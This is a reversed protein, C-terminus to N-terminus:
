SGCANVIKEAYDKAAQSETPNKVMNQAIGLINRSRVRDYIRYATGDINIDFFLQSELDVTYYSQPVGTIVLNTVNTNSNYNSGSIYNPLGKGAVGYKWGWNASNLDVTNKFKYGFRINTYGDVADGHRLSGGLFTFYTNEIVTYLGNEQNQAVVYNADLADYNPMETSGYAVTFSETPRYTDKLTSYYEVQVDEGDESFYLM